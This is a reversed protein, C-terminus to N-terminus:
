PHAGPQIVVNGDEDAESWSQGAAQFEARFDLVNITDRIREDWIARVTAQDRSPLADYSAKGALVATVRPSQAPPREYAPENM